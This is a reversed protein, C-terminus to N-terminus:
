RMPIQDVLLIVGNNARHLVPVKGRAWAGALRGEGGGPLSRVAGTGFDLSSPLFKFITSKAGSGRSVIQLLPLSVTFPASPSVTSPPCGSDRREKNCGAGGLFGGRPIWLKYFLLRHELFGLCFLSIWCMCVSYCNM